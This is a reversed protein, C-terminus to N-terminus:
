PKPNLAFFVSAVSTCSDLTLALAAEERSTCGLLSWVFGYVGFGLGWLGLSVRFGLSVRYGLGSVRFKRVRYM